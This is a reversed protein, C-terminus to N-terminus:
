NGKSEVTSCLIRLTDKSATLTGHMGDLKRSISKNEDAHLAKLESLQAHIKELWKTQTEVVDALRNIGKSMERIEEPVPLVGM